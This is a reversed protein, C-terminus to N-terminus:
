GKAIFHVFSSTCIWNAINFTQIYWPYRHRAWEPIHALVCMLAVLHMPLLLAGVVFFVSTTCRSQHGPELVVFFQAAMASTTLVAFLLWDTNDTRRLQFPVALAAAAALVVVLDPAAGPALPGRRPFRPARVVSATGSTM